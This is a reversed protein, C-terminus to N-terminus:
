ITYPVIAKDIKPERRCTTDREDGWRAKWAHEEEAAKDFAKRCESPLLDKIDESVAGLGKFSTLFDAGSTGSYAATSVGWPPTEMQTDMVLFNRAVRPPIDPFMKSESSSPAKSDSLPVQEIRARTPQM